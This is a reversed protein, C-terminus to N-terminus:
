QMTIRGIKNGIYEAFWLNGDPGATSGRPLSAPSLETITGAAVWAPFSSLNLLCNCVILGIIIAALSATIMIPRTATSAAM